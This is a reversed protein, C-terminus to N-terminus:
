VLLLFSIGSVVAHEVEARQGARFQNLFM